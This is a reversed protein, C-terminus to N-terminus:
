NWKWFLSISVFGGGYFVRVALLVYHANFVAVLIAEPLIRTAPKGRTGRAAGYTRREVYNHKIIADVYWARNMTFISWFITGQVQVFGVQINVQFLKFVLYLDEAIPTSAGAECDRRRDRVYVWSLHAILVYM